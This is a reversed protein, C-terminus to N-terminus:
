DARGGIGASNKATSNQPLPAAAAPTTMLSATRRTSTYACCTKTRKGPVRELAARSKENVASVVDVARLEDLTM